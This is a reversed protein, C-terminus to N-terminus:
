VYELGSFERVVPPQNKVRTEVLHREFLGVIDQMLAQEETLEAKDFDFSQAYCALLLNYEPSTELLMQLNYRLSVLKEKIGDDFLNLM